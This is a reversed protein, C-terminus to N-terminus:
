ASMPCPTPTPMLSGLMGNRTSSSCSGGEGLLRPEDILVSDQKWISAVLWPRLVNTERWPVVALMLSPPMLLGSPLVYSRIGPWTRPLGPFLFPCPGLVALQQLLPVWFM